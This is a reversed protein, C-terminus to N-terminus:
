AFAAPSFLAVGPIRMPILNSGPHAQLTHASVEVLETNHSLWQQKRNSRTGRDALFSVESCSLLTPNKCRTRTYGRGRRVLLRDAFRLYSSAQPSDTTRSSSYADVVSEQSSRPASRSLLM